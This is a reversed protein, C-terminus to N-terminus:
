GAQDDAADALLRQATALDTILVNVWGGVVAARIAAYKRAGGAVGIRRPVEMLQRPTVGVVRQDLNTRLHKGAPDFYRFCVDGVAGARRLDDQEESSFANGSRALLPSPELSGIGLLADTMEEWCATIDKVSRDNMIARRVAGSDVVGPAPLVMADAGLRHSLQNILRSAEVQVGPVGVGGVLQVVKDVGSVRKIPLLEATKLLTESWSSIGVVHGTTLTVDLYAATAAGLAPIVDDEAGAADVALVDRLGYARQVADEVDTHVGEPILVVTRVIGLEVAQKLLRSVRAQSMGLEAAIQPQRVGREHYMRAVKGLM